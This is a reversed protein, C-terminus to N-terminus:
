KDVNKKCKKEEADVRFTSARAWRAIYEPVYVNKPPAQAANYM